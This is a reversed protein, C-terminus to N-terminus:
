GASFAKNTRVPSVLQEDYGANKRKIQALLVCPPACMPRGASPGCTDMRPTTIATRSKNSPPNAEKTKEARNERSRERAYKRPEQRIISM